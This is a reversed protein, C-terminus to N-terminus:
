LLAQFVNGQYQLKFSIRLSNGNYIDFAVQLTQVTVRFLLPTADKPKPCKEKKIKM